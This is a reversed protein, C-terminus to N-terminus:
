MYSALATGFDVNGGVMTHNTTSETKAQNKPIAPKGGSCPIIDCSYAEHGHERLKKTVAQSEECAVLIKM